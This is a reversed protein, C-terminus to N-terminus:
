GRGGHGAPVLDGDFGSAALATAPVDIASRNFVDLGARAFQKLVVRVTREDWGYKLAATAAHGEIEREFASRMLAVADRVARDVERVLVIEGRAKAFDIERLGAEATVKRAAAEAQTASQTRPLAPRDAGAHPLATAVLRVNERRHAVLADLDVMTSKGIREPALAEAHQAVYRSLTSREVPDGLANLRKAADTISVLM